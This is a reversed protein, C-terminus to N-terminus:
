NVKEKKKKIKPMHFKKKFNKAHSIQNAEKLHQKQM